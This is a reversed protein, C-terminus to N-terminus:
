LINLKIKLEQQLGDPVCIIKREHPIGLIESKISVSAKWAGVPVRSKWLNITVNIEERASASIFLALYSIQRQLM